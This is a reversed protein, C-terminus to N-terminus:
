ALELITENSDLRIADLYVHRGALALCTNVLLGVLKGRLTTEHAVYDRAELFTTELENSDLNNRGGLLVELLM